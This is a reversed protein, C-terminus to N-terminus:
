TGLRDTTNQTARLSRVWRSLRDNNPSYEHFHFSSGKTREFLGHVSTSEGPLVVSGDAGYFEPHEQCSLFWQDATEGFIQRFGINRQNARMVGIYHQEFATASKRYDFLKKVQESAQRGMKVRKRPNDALHRIVEAFELPDRVVYGTEGHKVIQREALNDLVVPVVGLAMAELLSNEATGYHLPNLLYALVNIGRLEAVVDEAYGRFDLLDPVGAAKCQRVLLERNIADGIVRVKFDPIRVAALFVVYEPHLKAFNLSGIYGVALKETAELNPAPLNEFGGGSSVVALSNGLREAVKKVEQAHLSCPSTFIFRHATELLGKPIIPTHLGSVHCWVVLRMAPLHNQCLFAFTAPHNWWELQVIDADALMNTATAIHPCIEVRVGLDKLRNLFQPKEPKELLIFSHRFKTNRQADVLTSLAKGVGGGLHPTIHVVDIPANM